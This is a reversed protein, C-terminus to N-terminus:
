WAQTVVNGSIVYYMFTTNNEEPFQPDREAKEPLQYPQTKKRINHLLEQM